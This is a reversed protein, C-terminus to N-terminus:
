CPRAMLDGVRVDRPLVWSRGGTYPLVRQMVNELALVQNVRLRRPSRGSSNSISAAFGPFRRAAAVEVDDIKKHRMSIFGSSAARCLYVIEV